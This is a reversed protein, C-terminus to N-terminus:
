PELGLDTITWGRGILITRAASGAATYYSQVNSWTCTTSVPTETAFKNLYVDYEASTLKPGVNGSSDIFGDCSLVSTLNWNTIVPALTGNYMYFAYDIYFPRILWNTVSVDTLVNQFMSIMTAVPFSSTGLFDVLNQLDDGEYNQFMGDLNILSSLPYTSVWSAFGSTPNTWNHFMNCTVSLKNTFGWTSVDLSESALEANSFAYDTTEVNSMDWSEVGLWPKQDAAVSLGADRFLWSIEKVSSPIPGATLRHIAIEQYFDLQVIGTNGWQIVDLWSSSYGPYQRRTQICTLYPMNGYVTVNVISPAGTYNHSLAVSQLGTVRVRPTGDGFDWYADQFKPSIPDQIFCGPNVVRVHEINCFRATSTGGVYSLILRNDVIQVPIDTTNFTPSACCNANLQVFCGNDNINTIDAMYAIVEARSYFTAGDPDIQFPYSCFDGNTYCIPLQTIVDVFCREYFAYSITAIVFGNADLLSNTIVEGDVFTTTSFTASIFTNMYLPLSARPTQDSDVVSGDAKTVWVYQYTNTPSGAYTGYINVTSTTATNIRVVNIISLLPDRENSKNNLYTIEIGGYIWAGLLLLFLIVICVTFVWDILRYRQVSRLAM